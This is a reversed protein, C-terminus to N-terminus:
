FAIALRAGAGGPQVDLAVQAPRGGLWLWGGAALAVTGAAGLGAATLAWTRSSQRGYAFGGVDGRALSWSAGVSESWAIAGTAAGGALLAAGSAALVVGWRRRSSRVERPASPEPAVLGEASDRRPAAALDPPRAAREGQRELRTTGPPPPPLELTAAMPPPLGDTPNLSLLVRSALKSAAARAAAEDRAVSAGAQGKVAGRRGDRLRLEVYWLTGSEKVKAVLLADAGVAGCVAVACAAQAGCTAPDAGAAAVARAVEDPAVVRAGGERAAEAAAAAVAAVTSAPVAEGQPAGLVAIRSPEDGAGAPAPALALLLAVLLTGGGTCGSRTM